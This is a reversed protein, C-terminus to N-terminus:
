DPRWGRASASFSDRRARNARETAPPVITAPIRAAQRSGAGGGGIAVGAGDAVVAGTPGLATGAVPAVLTGVAIPEGAAPADGVDGGMPALGVAAPVAVGFRKKNGSTGNTWALGVGGMTTCTWGVAVGTGVEGGAGVDGGADVAVVPGGRGVTVGVGIGCGIM